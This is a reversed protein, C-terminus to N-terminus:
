ELGEINACSSINGILEGRVIVPVQNRTMEKMTEELSQDAATSSMIRNGDLDTFILSLSIKASIDILNKEISNM